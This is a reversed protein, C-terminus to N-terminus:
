VTAEEPEQPALNGAAPSGVVEALPTLGVVATDPVLHRGCQLCAVYVGFQDVQKYLDGGCKPCGKLWFM